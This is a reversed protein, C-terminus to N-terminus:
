RGSPNACQAAPRGSILHCRQWRTRGTDYGTFNVLLSLCATCTLSRLGVTPRVQVDPTSKSKSHYTLQNQITSAGWVFLFLAVASTIARTHTNYTQIQLGWFIDVDLWNYRKSTLSHMNRPIHICRATRYARQAVYEAVYEACCTARCTGRLMNRSMNRAVHVYEACCASTLKSFIYGSVARIACLM